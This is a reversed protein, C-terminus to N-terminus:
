HENLSRRFIEAQRLIGVRGSVGLKRGIKELHKKVTIERIGLSSAIQNNTYGLPLFSVIQVERETRGYKNL